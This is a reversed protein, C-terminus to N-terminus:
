LLRHASRERETIHVRRSVLGTECAPCPGGNPGTYGTNCSCGTVNKNNMSSNSNTPCVTCAASGFTDKYTDAECMSCQDKSAGKETGTYGANCSCRMESWCFREDWKYVQVEALQLYQAVGIFSSLRLYRVTGVCRRKIM